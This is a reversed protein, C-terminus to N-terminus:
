STRTYVKDFVLVSSKEFRRSIADFLGFSKASLPKLTTENESRSTAWRKRAPDVKLLSWEYLGNGIAKASDKWYCEERLM